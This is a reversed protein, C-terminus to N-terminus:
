LRLYCGINMDASSVDIALGFSRVTQAEIRDWQRLSFYARHTPLQICVHCTRVLVPVQAALGEEATSILLQCFDSLCDVLSVNQKSARRSLLIQRIANGFSCDGNISWVDCLRLKLSKLHPLEFPTNIQFPCCFDVEIHRVLNTNPVQILDPAPLQPSWLRCVNDPHIFNRDLVIRHILLPKVEAYIQKSLRLLFSPSENNALIEYIEPALLRLSRGCRMHHPSAGGNTRLNAYCTFYKSVHIRRPLALEFFMQRIELPLTLFTLTMKNSLEIYASLLLLTKQPILQAGPSSHLPLYQQDLFDSCSSIQLPIAQRPIM